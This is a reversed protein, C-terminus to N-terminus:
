SETRNVTECGGGEVLRCHRCLCPLSIIDGEELCLNLVGRLQIEWKSVSQQHLVCLSLLSACDEDLLNVIAHRLGVGILPFIGSLSIM